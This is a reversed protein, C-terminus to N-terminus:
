PQLGELTHLNQLRFLLTLRARGPNTNLAGSHITKSNFVVLDGAEYYSPVEIELRDVQDQSLNYDFRSSDGTRDFRFSDASIHSGTAIQLLGMSEDFDVLPIWFTFSDQTGRNYLYDHHWKIHNVKDDLLDLRIQVRPWVGIAESGLLRKALNQVQPLAPVALAFPIQQLRQYLLSQWEPKRQLIDVFLRDIETDTVNLAEAGLKGCFSMALQLLASQLQELEAGNLFGRVLSYGNTKCEQIITDSM